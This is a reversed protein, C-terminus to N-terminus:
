LIGFPLFPKSSLKRSLAPEAGATADRRPVRLNETKEHAPHFAGRAPLPVSGLGEPNGHPVIGVPQYVISCAEDLM